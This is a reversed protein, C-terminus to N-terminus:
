KPSQVLGDKLTRGIALRRGRLLARLKIYVAGLKEGAYLSLPMISAAAILGAALEVAHHVQVEM